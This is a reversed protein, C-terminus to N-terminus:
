TGVGFILRPQRNGVRTIHVVIAIRIDENPGRVSIRATRRKSLGVHDETGDGATNRQELGIDAQIPNIGTAKKTQAHCPQAVEVLVTIIINCDRRGVAAASAACCPGNKDEEAGQFPHNGGFIGIGDQETSGLSIGCTIGKGTRPIDIVIAKRVDHDSGGEFSGVVLDLAARGEDDQSRDGAGAAQGRRFGDDPAGHGVGVGSATDGGGSVEIPVALAIDEDAGGAVATGVGLGSCYM